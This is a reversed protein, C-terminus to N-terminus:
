HLRGDMCRCIQNHFFLEFSAATSYGCQVTCYQIAEVKNVRIKCQLKEAVTRRHLFLSDVCEKQKKINVTKPKTGWQM